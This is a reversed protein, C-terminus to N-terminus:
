PSVILGGFGLWALLLIAVAVLILRWNVSELRVSGPTPLMPFSASSGGNQPVAQVARGAEPAIAAGGAEITAMAAQYLHRVNAPMEDVSSYEQGNFIVKANSTMQVSARIGKELTDLLGGHKAGALTALAREYAQRIDPPMDDVSAYDQGNVRIKTKVSINATM